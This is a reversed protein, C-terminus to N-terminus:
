RTRRMEAPAWRVAETALRVARLPDRGHPDPHTSAQQAQETLLQALWAADNHSQSQLYPSQRAVTIAKAKEDYAVRMNRHYIQELKGKPGEVRVKGDAIGAKVGAPIVIPQKGIRSM